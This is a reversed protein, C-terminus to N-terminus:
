KQLKKQERKLRRLERKKEKRYQQEERINELTIDATQKALAVDADSELRIAVPAIKIKKIGEERVFRNLDTNSLMFNLVVANRKIVARLIKDTKCKFTVAGFAENKRCDKNALIHAVVDDYYARSEATLAAYKEVFSLKQNKKSEFVVSNDTIEGYRSVLEELMEEKESISADAAATEDQMPVVVPAPEKKEEEREPIPPAPPVDELIEVSGNKVKLILNDDEVRLGKGREVKQSITKKRKYEMRSDLVWLVLAALLLFILVSIIVIFFLVWDM